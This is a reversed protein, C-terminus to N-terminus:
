SEEKKGEEIGKALLENYKRNTYEATKKQIWQQRDAEIALMEDAIEEASSPKGQLLYSIMRNLAKETHLEKAIIEGFSAPYGYRQLIQILQESKKEIMNMWQM